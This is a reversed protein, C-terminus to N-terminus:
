GIIVNPSGVILSGIGGCHTTTDGLRAVPIDNFSVTSSGQAVVWTNPGCCAAHTGPDGIRLPPQSNILINPSGNIGPGTVPHACATCGHADAPCHANDGVRSVPPM